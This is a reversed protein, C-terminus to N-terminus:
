ATLTPVNDFVHAFEVKMEAWSRTMEGGISGIHDLLEELTMPTKVKDHYPPTPMFPPGIEWTRANYQWGHEAHKRFTHTNITGDLDFPAQEALRRRYSDNYWRMQKELYVCLQDIERDTPELGANQEGGWEPHGIVLATHYNWRPNHHKLAPIRRATVPHHIDVEDAFDALQFRTYTRTPERSGTAAASTAPDSM